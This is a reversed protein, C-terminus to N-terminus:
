AYIKCVNENIENTQQQQKKKEMAKANNYCLMQRLKKANRGGFDMLIFLLRVMKWLEVSFPDKMAKRKRKM